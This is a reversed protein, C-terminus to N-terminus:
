WTAVGAYDYDGPIPVRNHKCQSSKLQDANMWPGHNLLEPNTRTALLEPNTRLESCEDKIGIFPTHEPRTDIMPEVHVTKDKCLDQLTVSEPQTVTPTDCKTVTAIDCNTVTLRSHAKRCRSSCFLAKGTVQNDCETRKCDM